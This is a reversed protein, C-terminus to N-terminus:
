EKNRIDVDKKLTWKSGRKKLSDYSMDPGNCGLSEDQNNSLPTLHDFIFQKSKEDYSLSINLDACYTLVVRNAKGRYGKFVRSGLMLGKDETFDFVEMIKMKTGPNPQGWALAIYKPEDGGKIRILKYYLAGYWKTPLYQSNELPIPVQPTQVLPYIRDNDFDQVFGYFRYTMDEMECCWTYVRINYDDSYIKGINKLSDFPYLFSGQLRLAELMKKSIAENIDRRSADNTDTTLLSDFLQKIDNEKPALASSYKIKRAKLMSDLESKTLANQEVASPEAKAIIEKNTPPALTQKIEVPTKVDIVHSSKPAPPPLMQKNAQGQQAFAGVSLFLLPLILIRNM